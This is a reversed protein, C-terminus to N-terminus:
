HRFNLQHLDLQNTISHRRERRYPHHASASRNRANSTFLTDDYEFDTFQIFQNNQSQQQQEQQQQQQMNNARENYQAGLNRFYDEREDSIEGDELPERIDNPRITNNAEETGFLARNFNNLANM